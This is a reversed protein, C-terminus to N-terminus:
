SHVYTGSSTYKLVKYDGDTTVTPSGTTTGSYESTLLRLIVVGTGGAGSTGRAGGGGGGTNATGATGTTTGGAGGGGTGGSGATGGGGGGGGGAYAVSSGTINVTLGAGGAGGNSTSSNSGAASAGGGGGGNYSSEGVGNGGAFGQNATGAGGSGGGHAGGGGSGGDGGNGPYGGKGGGASTITTLGTAAISSDGGDNGTGDSGSKAAGGAGITITYTGAALTIDSEAAAGGGSNNGFSTRLGGAGGGAGSRSDGRGGSAGGGVVLFSMFGAQPQLVHRFAMYIWTGGSTNLDSNSTIAVNFGDSDFTVYDSSEDTEASNANPYLRKDGGRVSDFINWYGTSDTRKIMVWDAKFGTDVSVASNSGSYTGIKSYGSVSHFCYAIFTAGVSVTQGDKISFVSTTPETNAWVNTTSFEAAPDNLYLSKGAGSISNYVYWNDATTAKIIILDPKVGLGHGFSNVTNLGGSATGKVISFGNATNANITSGITGDINSQWTNGAKWCWAVYSGSSKNFKVNQGSAYALSFGDSDFSTLQSDQNQADSGNAYLLGRGRISDTVVHDNAENRHKIWVLDPRFGIGTISQTGGNGTYTVTRFSNALTTNSPVNKAIAWYIYNKNNGNTGNGTTGNLTFTTAGFDITHVSGDDEATNADPMIRNDRPNGTDRKSDLIFWPEDEGTAKVMVFDPKFGVTVANGTSGTGTYSGFKQYGTVDHFCYAIIENSSGDEANTDNQVGVTFTTANPANSTGGWFVDNTIEDEANELRLIKGAGLSSHFVTWSTSSDSINKAIIMNPAASLGHPIKQLGQTGEYKVISFGANPNASIVASSADVLSLNDNDGATEAYLTAVENDTIAGSYIRLQDIEGNYFAEGGTAFAHVTRGINTSASAHYGIAQTQTSVDLEGNIYMKLEDPNMTIVIHTYANTAIASTSVVATVNGCSTDDPYPNDCDGNYIVFRAKGTSNDIRLIFGKSASSQYDYNEIISRHGSGAPKVWVSITLHRFRFSGNSLNM